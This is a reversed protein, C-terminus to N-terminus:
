CYFILMLRKGSFFWSVVCAVMCLRFRMVIYVGMFM